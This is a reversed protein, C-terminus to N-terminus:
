EGEVSFEYDSTMTVIRRKKPRSLQQLLDVATPISSRTGGKAQLIMAYLGPLSEQIRETPLQFTEPWMKITWVMSKGAMKVDEM